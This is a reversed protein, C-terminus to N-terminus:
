YELSIDMEKEKMERKMIHIKEKLSDIEVVDVLGKKFCRKFYDLRGKFEITDVSSLNLIKFYSKLDEFREKLYEVEERIINNSEKELRIKRRRSRNM